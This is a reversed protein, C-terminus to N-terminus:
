LKAIVLKHRRTLTGPQAVSWCTECISLTTTETCYYPKQGSLKVVATFEERHLFLPFQKHCIKSFSDDRRGLARLRSADCPAANLKWAM